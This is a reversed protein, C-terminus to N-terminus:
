GPPKDLDFSYKIPQRLGNVVGCNIIDSKLPIRNIASLNLNKQSTYVAPSQAHISNTPENEWYPM